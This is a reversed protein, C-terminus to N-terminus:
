SPAGTTGSGAGESWSYPHTHSSLNVGGATVTSGSVENGSVNGSASVNGSVSINGTISATGSGTSFSPSTITTGVNLSTRATV